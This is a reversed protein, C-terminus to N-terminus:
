PGPRWTALLLCAPTGSSAQIKVEVATNFLTLTVAQGPDLRIGSGLGDLQVVLTDAADQNQCFLQSLRSGSLDITTPTGSLHQFDSAFDVVQGGPSANVTAMGIRGTDFGAIGAYPHTSPRVPM